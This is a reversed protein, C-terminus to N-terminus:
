AFLIVTSMFRPNAGAERKAIKKGRSGSNKFFGTFDRQLNCIFSYFSFLFVVCDGLSLLSLKRLRQSSPPTEGSFNRFFGTFAQQLNWIFVYFVVYFVVCGGSEFPQAQSATSFQLANLM